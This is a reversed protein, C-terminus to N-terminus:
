LGIEIAYKILERENQIDLKLHINKRHTIVTHPSLFLEESIQQSSKGRSILRLVDLERASLKNKKYFSDSDNVTRVEEIPFYTDGAQISLVAKTVENIDDSKLIYGHVGIKKFADIQSKDAYMTIILIKKDPYKALVEIALEKGDKKPMNFDLLLLQINAHKDLYDLVITSDYLQHITSFRDISSLLSKFGDNFLRHDDVILKEM